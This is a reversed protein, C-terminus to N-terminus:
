RATHAERAVIEYWLTRHEPGIRVVTRNGETSIPVTGQPAGRGDLARVQEARVPLTLEASIGNVQTPGRGWQTGVSTRAENWVMGQNEASGVATLLLRSSQELPKGDLSTLIVAAYNRDAAGLKLHIAGLEFEQGAILGWVARSAPTTLQVHARAPDTADWVVQADPTALRKGQPPHAEGPRAAGPDIGLRHSLALTAPLMEEPTGALTTPLPALDGRRYLNACAALLALKVPQGNFSFYGRIQDDFWDRENSHYQFFFVGDWDQLAAIMAAFPVVSAAHDNPDPINWESLTFPRDLLRWPARGLLSTEDPSREMPTNAITWNSRDWPQGPFRPHEWYCHIDTYDCTDAVIKPGHYNIQSATIPVRVGLDRKLFHMLDQIFETETDAMFRQVDSRAAECWNGSPIDLNGVDLRQDPPIVVYAGGRQLRVDALSFSTPDGGFKFCIRVQDPISKEARFVREVRTWETTADISEGLGVDRWTGPGQRSVDVLVTRAADAKIWFSLTHSRGPELKLDQLMLEQQSLTEAPKGIELRLAPLDAQPGPQHHVAQVPFAPSQHVRWRGLGTKWSGSDAIVDGLPELNRSWAEQLAATSTYHGALWANWQRKFEGRYPDPLQAALDPGVKSFANENSIEIMAIGPDDVRRLGRHLNTHTLYERCFEKFQERMRPEFYLLYKSYRVAYPLDSMAFGEAPTFTRGVHLNLNAYIGHQHLQNLFYDFREMMEPDLTRQGNVVPGWVGRPANATDHHHVRLGNVGLKALHAAVQDAEAHTPFNAGFCTNVGWIKLRSGDTFFHGDKIRVFGDAGAPGPSLRSFDTASPTADNGPISFAFRDTDAAHGPHLALALWLTAQYLPHRRRRAEATTNM